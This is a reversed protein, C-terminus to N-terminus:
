RAQAPVDAYRKAGSVVLEADMTTGWRADSMVAVAEDLTLAPETPKGDDDLCTAIDMELHGGAPYSAYVVTSQVCNADAAAFTELKVMGPTASTDRLPKLWVRLMGPGKGTDLYVQAFLGDDSNAALKSVKGKPLLQTLLELVSKDTAAVQKGTGREGRLPVDWMKSEPVSGVSTRYPFSVEPSPTGGASGGSPLVEVPESVSPPTESPLSEAQPTESPLAGAALGPATRPSGAPWSVVTGAVVVGLVAFAAGVMAARRRRAIRRGGDMAVAVIDGLPPPREEGLESRMLARLDETM